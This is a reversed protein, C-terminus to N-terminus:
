EYFITFYFMGNAESSEFRVVHAGAPLREHADSRARAYTSGSGTVSKTAAVAAVPAPAAHVAPIVTCFLVAILAYRM